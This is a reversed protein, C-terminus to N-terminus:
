SRKEEPLSIELTGGDLRTAYTRLPRKAPGALVRGDLAFESRGWCTCQVTHHKPKYAVPGNGHTCPRDLAAFHRKGDHVVILNLQRTEDVIRASGGAARLEPVRDLDILIRRDEIRVAASPVPPTTCCPPLAAMALAGQFFDRRNM